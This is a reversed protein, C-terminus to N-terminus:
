AEVNNIIRDAIAEKNIILGSPLLMAMSGDIPSNFIAYGYRCNRYRFLLANYGKLFGKQATTEFVYHSCSQKFICKRRKHEPILHWYCQIAFLLLQKM